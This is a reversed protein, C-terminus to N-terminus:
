NQDISTRIRGGSYANRNEDPQTHPSKYRGLIVGLNSRRLTTAIFGPKRSEQGKYFYFHIKLLLYPKNGTISEHELPVIARRLWVRPTLLVTHYCGFSLNSHTRHQTLLWASSRARLYCEVREWGSETQNTRLDHQPLIIIVYRWSALNVFQTM